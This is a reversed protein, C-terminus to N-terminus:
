LKFKCFVLDNKNLYFNDSNINDVSKKKESNFNGDDDIDTIRLYAPLDADFEVAAANIGYDGKILTVDSFKKVEWDRPILGISTNKFTNKDM